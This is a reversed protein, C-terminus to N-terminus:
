ERTGGDEEELLRLVEEMHTGRSGKLLIVDERETEELLAWALARHSDFARARLLGAERAGLVYDRAGPGYCFLGRCVKAAAAGTERHAQPGQDGLELMGGLAAYKGGGPTQALVSLAARVSDPSANYCDDIIRRGAARCLRQRHGTNEFRAIGEGIEQLTLGLLQGVAAAALANKVHHEGLCPLTTQIEGQPTHLRLRQGEGETQVVLPFYDNERGLGFRVTRFGPGTVDRLLPEDGNVILTGGPRLGELIELKAKAIGERSGLFEIHNMGICTIVAIEPQVMATLRSMEGFHNMGMEVVAAQTGGDLGLLTRPVGIENNYNGQTKLVRLRRELVAAIMEKTSTKGVSGTVGIVPCSFRRRYGGALRALAALPDAVRLLPLAGVPDPRASLAAAAGREAAAPLYDHGDFREGSLPVFLEGGAVTRSDTSVGTVTLQEKGEPCAAGCLAAVTELTLPEMNSGASSDPSRRGNMWITGCM